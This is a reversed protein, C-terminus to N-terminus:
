HTADAALPYRPDVGGSLLPSCDIESVYISADASKWRWWIAHLITCQTRLCLETRHLEYIKKILLRDQNIEEVRFVCTMRLIDALVVTVM